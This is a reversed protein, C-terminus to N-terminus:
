TITLKSKRMGPDDFHSSLARITPAPTRVSHWGRALMEPGHLTRGVRGGTEFGVICALLFSAGSVDAKHGRRQSDYQIASFLAPLVVSNAHWPTESHVDDLEFGQIYTSNLLAATRPSM